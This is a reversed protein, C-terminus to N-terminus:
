KIVKPLLFIESTSSFLQCKLSLLCDSTKESFMIGLASPWELNSTVLPVRAPNLVSSRYIAPSKDSSDTWYLTRYVVDCTLILGFRIMKDAGLM